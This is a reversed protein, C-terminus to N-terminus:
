VWSLDKTVLYRGIPTRAKLFFKADFYRQYLGDTVSARPSPVEGLQYRLRVLLDGIASEVLSLKDTPMSKKWREVPSFKGDDGPEFSTNPESVSGVGAELIRDYNLEQDVFEGVKTLAAQPQTVLDEFHIELYDGGLERGELMGRGVIWKWYSAAAVLEGGRDWPFPRIWHQRAMSLAVDRGDRIIHIVLADPITAKIRRLYLLHEPTCDAWRGVKQERAMASMVIRLFDGANGCRAEIEQELGRAELGTATFLRTKLWAEVLNKRNQALGLDGFRPELLNFVQSEARYIAFNGGSLLMHYLLTTGSRPSGLVFVPAKSRSSTGTRPAAPSSIETSQM